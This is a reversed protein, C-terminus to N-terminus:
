TFMRFDHGVCLFVGGAAATRGDFRVNKLGVSVDRWAGAVDAVVGVGEIDVAVDHAFAYYALGAM